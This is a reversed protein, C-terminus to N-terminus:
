DRHLLLFLNFMPGPMSRKGELWAYVTHVSVGLMNAIDAATYNCYHKIQRLYQNNM